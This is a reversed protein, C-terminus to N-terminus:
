ALQRYCIFKFGGLNHARLLPTPARLVPVLKSWLCSTSACKRLKAGDMKIASVSRVTVDSAHSGIRCIAMTVNREHSQYGSHCSGLTVHLCALVSMCIFLVKVFGVSFNLAFTVEDKDIFCSVSTQV